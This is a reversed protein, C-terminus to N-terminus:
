QEQSTDIEAILILVQQSCAGIIITSAEADKKISRGAEPKGSQTSGSYGPDSTDGPVGGMPLDNPNDRGHGARTEKGKRKKQVRPLEISYELMM